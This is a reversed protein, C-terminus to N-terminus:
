YSRLTEVYLRGAALEGNPTNPHGKYWILYGGVGVIDWWGTSLKDIHTNAHPGAFGDSSCTGASGQGTAGNYFIMEHNVAAIISWGKGMNSTRIDSLVGDKRGLVTEASNGTRSNYFVVIDRFAVRIPAITTWGPALALSSGKGSVRRTDGM